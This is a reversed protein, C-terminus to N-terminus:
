DAQQDGHVAELGILRHDDQGGGVPRIDEIGGQQAGAAEVALDHDVWRIALSALRDEPDVRALMGSAASMSRPAM